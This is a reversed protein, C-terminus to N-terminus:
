RFSQVTPAVPSWTHRKNTGWNATAIEILEYDEINVNYESLCCTMTLCFPHPSTKGLEASSTLCKGKECTKSGLNNLKTLHCCHHLLKKSPYVSQDTNEDRSLYVAVKTPRGECCNLITLMECFLTFHVRQDFEGREWRLFFGSHVLFRNCSVNAYSKPLTHKGANREQTQVSM